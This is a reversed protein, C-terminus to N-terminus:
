SPCSPNQQKVGWLVYPLRPFSNPSFPNPLGTSIQFHRLSSLNTCISSPQIGGTRPIGCLLVHSAGDTPLPSGQAKVFGFSGTPHLTAPEQLTTCNKFLQRWLQSTWGPNTGTFFYSTLFLFLHHHQMQPLSYHACPTQEIALCLTQWLTQSELSTLPPTTSSGHQQSLSCAACLSLMSRLRVLKESHWPLDAEPNSVSDEPTFGPIFYILM